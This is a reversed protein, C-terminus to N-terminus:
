RSAVRIRRSKYLQFGLRTNFVNVFPLHTYIQDMVTGPQFHSFLAAYANEITLIDDETMGSAAAYLGIIVTAYDVFHAHFSGNIRQADWPGGQKFKRLQAFEYGLIAPGGDETSMMSRELAQDELGQRIFFHPDLGAPRLMPAGKINLVPKGDDDTFPVATDDLTKYDALQFAAPDNFRNSTPSTVRFALLDGRSAATALREAMDRASVPSSDHFFEAYIEHLAFAGTPGESLSELEVRLQSGDLGGRRLLKPSPRLLVIEYGLGYLIFRDRAVGPDKLLIPGAMSITEGVM